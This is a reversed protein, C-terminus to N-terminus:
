RALFHLRGGFGSRKNVIACRWIIGFLHNYKVRKLHKKEGSEGVDDGDVFAWVASAGEGKNECRSLCIDIKAM